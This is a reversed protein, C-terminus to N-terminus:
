KNIAVIDKAPITYDDNPRADQNIKYFIRGSQNLSEKIRGIRRMGDEDNFVVITDVELNNINEICKNFIVSIGEKLGPEMANDRISVPFICKIENFNGPVFSGNRRLSDRVQRGIFIVIGIFILLKILKM